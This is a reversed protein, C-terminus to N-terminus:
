IKSEAEKRMARQILDKQQFYSNLKKLVKKWCQGELQMRQLDDASIKAPGLLRDQLKIIENKVDEVLVEFGPSRSFDFVENATRLRQKRTKAQRKVAKIENEDMLALSPRSFQRMPHM